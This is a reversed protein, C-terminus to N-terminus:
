MSAAGSSSCFYKRVVWCTSSARWATKKLRKMCSTQPMPVPLVMKHLREGFARDLVWYQGKRPWIRIEEGGALASVTGGAVGAANIVWRARVPGAPTQVATLVGDAVDFGLVPCSLRIEAGNAAALEAYGCTLRVPDILGEDPLHVAGRCEPTLMPELERAQAGTLLEARAGAAIAEACIPELKPLQDDTIAVTLAGPRSFPVDLRDCIDEWRPWSRAILDAELTGPPAYYTTAIGANGKSSGEAVDDAEELLCVSATTTALRAAVATGLVGAGIVVVDYAPGYRESM